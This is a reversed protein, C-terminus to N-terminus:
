QAVAPFRYFIVFKLIASNYRIWFYLSVHHIFAFLEILGMAIQYNMQQHRLCEFYLVVTLVGDRSDGGFCFNCDM